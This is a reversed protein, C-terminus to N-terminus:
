FYLKISLNVYHLHLYSSMCIIEFILFEFRLQFWLIILCVKGTSFLLLSYNFQARMDLDSLENSMALVEQFIGDSQMSAFDASLELIIGISEIAREILPKMESQFTMSKGLDQKLAVRNFPIVAIRSFVRHWFFLFLCLFEQFFCIGSRFVIELISPKRIM